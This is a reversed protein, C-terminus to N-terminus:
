KPWLVMAIDCNTLYWCYILVDELM